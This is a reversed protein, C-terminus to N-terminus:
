NKFTTFIAVNHSFKTYLTTHLWGYLGQFFSELTTDIMMILSSKVELITLFTFNPLCKPFFKPSYYNVLIFELISHELHENQLGQFSIELM